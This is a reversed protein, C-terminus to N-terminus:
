MFMFSHSNLETFDLPFMTKFNHLKYLSYPGLFIPFFDYLLGQIDKLQKGTRLGYLPDLFNVQLKDHNNNNNNNNNHLNRHGYRSITYLMCV